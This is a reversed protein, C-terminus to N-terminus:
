SAEGEHIEGRSSMRAKAKYVTGRSVGMKRAIETPSCGEALKAQIADIDIRPIRARYVGRPKAAREPTM